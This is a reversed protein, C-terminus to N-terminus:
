RARVQPAAGSQACCRLLFIASPRTPSWLEHVDLFFSPSPVYSSVSARIARRFTGSVRLQHEGSALLAVDTGGVASTTKDKAAEEQAKKRSDHGSSLWRLRQREEKYTVRGEGKHEEWGDDGPREDKEEAKFREGKTGGGTDSSGNPSKTTGNEEDLRLRSVIAAWVVSVFSSANGRGSCAELLLEM